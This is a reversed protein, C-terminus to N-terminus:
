TRDRLSFVRHIEGYPPIKLTIRIGAPLTTAVSGEVAELEPPWYFHTAGTHDIFHIELLQIDTLLRQRHPESGPARDLVPWYWRILDHGGSDGPEVGYGVRQLTGRPLDGPNVWGSRTFLLRYGPKVSSLAPQPLGDNDRVPRDVVARLDRAMIWLGRQLQRLREARQEVRQGSTIMRELVQWCGLSIVAFIAIAVVLEMLTFGRFGKM